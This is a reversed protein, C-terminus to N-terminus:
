IQETGPQDQVRSDVGKTDAQRQLNRDLQSM